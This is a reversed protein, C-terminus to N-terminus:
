RKVNPMYMQWVATQAQQAGEGHRCRRPWQDSSSLALGGVEGRGGGGIIFSARAMLEAHM